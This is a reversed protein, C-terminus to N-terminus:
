PAAAPQAGFAIANPAVGIVGQLEVAGIDYRGLAPRPNGFIDHDPAGAANADNFAPSGTAISYNGLPVGYGTQGATISPNSLSLPGYSMNIWNNGEDVTAAPTLNFVPNPSTADAVGPPVAYGMGGNEPPVHAGNCYQTLLGPDAPQINTASYGATSTLISYTPTLTFGSSHNAPGTDGRVGIDWYNAGTVCQGTSTQNLTPVLMVLNQQFAPDYSGVTIHFTRNQWFLDNKVLPLSVQRCQGNVLPAAYGYGAPCRVQAPLSATLNSTNRM